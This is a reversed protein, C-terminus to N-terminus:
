SNGEDPILFVDTYKSFTDKVITTTRVIFHIKEIEACTNEIHNQLEEIQCNFLPFVITFHPEIVDYYRLDNSKRISQIWEYDKKELKPYALILNSVM